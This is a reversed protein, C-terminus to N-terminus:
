YWQKFRHFHIETSSELINNSISAILTFFIVRVELTLAKRAVDLRLRILAALRNAELFIETLALIHLKVRQM